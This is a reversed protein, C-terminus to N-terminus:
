PQPPGLQKVPVRGASHRPELLAVISGPPAAEGARLALVAREDFDAGLSRLTRAAQELATLRETTSTTGLGLLLDAYGAEFPMELSRAVRACKSWCAKARRLRGGRAHFMGRSLELRPRAIPFVQACRALQRLATRARSLAVASARGQELDALALFAQSLYSYPIIDLFVVLGVKRGLELAATAYSSAESTKGLRLSAVAVLANLNIAEARGPLGDVVALGSMGAELALQPQDSVLYGFGKFIASWCFSQVDGRSASRHLADALEQVERFRGTAFYSYALM